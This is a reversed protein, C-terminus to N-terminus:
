WGDFLGGDFWDWLLYIILETQRTDTDNLPIRVGLSAMVHQRTNLTVQLQPVLDWHVPEGEALERAGLVEVIPSWTRGWRGETFSRGLAVRWFAENEAVDRDSPFELGAQAHVFADSPLIQGYAMFPEFVTVGKGFGDDEDGTPLFVEGGASLITGSALSHLLVRKVGIGVDGLGAAWGDDSGVGGGSPRELFGFPVVLELQSRAGFRREYVFEKMVAGSGETAAAVTLVAEDEPYAKETVLARPLNLEGRPWAGNSCFTRVHALAMEIEEDTLADGLAPMMPSFARVPGGEHVVAAWDGDPERTAFSCESFDPLPEEFAVVAQPAGRGDAGHCAACAARYVDEPSTTDAAVAALPIPVHEPSQVPTAGFLLGPIGVLAMLGFASGLIGADSAPGIEFM